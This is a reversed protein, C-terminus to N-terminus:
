NKIANVLTSYDTKASPKFNKIRKSIVSVQQDYWLPITVYENHIIEQVQDFIVKREKSDMTISGKDLLKDLKTNKYRARNRGPPFEQSHFAVRYIDPDLAGVWRMMALEFNGENIDGFFTGWEYSQIKIKIGVKSLTNAVVKAREIVSKNNSTKLVLTLDQNNYPVLLKKALELDYHYPKLLNNQYPNQPPLISTAPIAYGNLKYKIIEDINIAHSLAKRFNLQNLLKHKFNLLVYTMAVGPYKYITFEDPKAEFDVIKNTPLESLAIDVEGRIM